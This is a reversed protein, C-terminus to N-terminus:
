GKWRYWGFGAREVVGDKILQRIKADTYGLARLEGAMMEQGPSPTSAVPGPQPAPETAAAPAVKARKPAPKARKPPADVAPPPPASPAAPPLPKAIGDPWLLVLGPLAAKTPMAPLPGADNAPPAFRTLSGEEGWAAAALALAARQGALLGADEPARVLPAYEDEVDTPVLLWDRLLPRMLMPSVLFRPAVPTVSPVLVTAAEFALEPFARYLAELAERRMPAHPCSPANEPEPEEPPLLGLMKLLSREEDGMRGFPINVGSWRSGGRRFPAPCVPCRVARRTVLELHERLSDLAAAAAGESPRGDPEPDILWAPHSLLAHDVLLSRLGDDPVDDADLSASEAMWTDMPYEVRGPKRPAGGTLTLTLSAWRGDVRRLSAAGFSLGTAEYALLPARRSLGAVRDLLARMPDDM